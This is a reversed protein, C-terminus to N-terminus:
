DLIKRRYQFNGGAEKLIENNLIQSIFKELFEILVKARSQPSSTSAKEPGKGKAAAAEKKAEIAIVDEVDLADSLGDDM